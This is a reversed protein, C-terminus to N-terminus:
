TKERQMEQREEGREVWRNGIERKERGAGRGSTTWIGCGAAKEGRAKAEGEDGTLRRM